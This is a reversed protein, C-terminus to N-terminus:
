EAGEDEQTKHVTWGGKLKTPRLGAEDMTEGTRGMEAKTNGESGAGGDRRSIHEGGPVGFRRTRSKVAGRGKLKKPSTIVTALLGRM